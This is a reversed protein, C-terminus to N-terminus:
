LRLDEEIESCCYDFWIADSTQVELSVCHGLYLKDYRRDRYCCWVELVCHREYDWAEHRVVLVLRAVPLVLEHALLEAICRILGDTVQRGREYLAAQDLLTASM